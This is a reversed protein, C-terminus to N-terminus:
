ESHLSHFNKKKEFNAEIIIAAIRIKFKYKNSSFLGDKSLKITKLLNKHDIDSVDEIAVKLTFKDKRKHTLLFPTIS